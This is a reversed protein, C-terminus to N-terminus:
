LRRGAGASTVPEAVRLTGLEGRAYFCRGPKVAAVCLAYTGAAVNKTDIEYAFWADDLPPSPLGPPRTKRGFGSIAQYRIPPIVVDAPHLELFVQAPRQEGVVSWGQLSLVGGRECEIVSNRTLTTSKGAFALIVASEVRDDTQRAFGPFPRAEAAVDFAAALSSGYRRGEGDFAWIECRQRGRGLGGTPIAIEFGLFDTTAGITTRVDPRPMDCPASWIHSGEIIACVGAPARNSSIDIAWGTVLAVDGLPVVNDLAGRPGAWPVDVINDIYLRPVGAHPALAPNVSDYIWFSTQAADYWAGDASLVYARLSHPGPAFGELPVVARFGIDQPTEAGLETRVDSRDFGAEAAQPPRDDVAVAVAVPPEKSAPDIAWGSVALPAAKPVRLRGIRPFLGRVGDVWAFVDIDGRTTAVVTRPDFAPLSVSNRM